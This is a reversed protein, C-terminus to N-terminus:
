INYKGFDKSNLSIKAKAAAGYDNQAMHKKQSMEELLKVIEPPLASDNNGNSYNDKIKFNNVLEKMLQAQGSLEESAAASEESTASNTQVVEAVEAIAQNIQSIGSAQETSAMAIEGILDAAKAIGDVIQDLASATENAIQTGIDVKKISGEIMATTENAANASRAALNRVEEAVVAFGKGHQGARAAEVAANLALINTQFAIDDIVKIIKSISNSSDNIEAMAKLMEGMHKNGQMAKGKVSTALENAENANAANQRTQTAIEEISATIEEISSAQETSGQSLAQSSVSVQNAGTAVQESAANINSLIQNNKDVMEKLKKNLLDNESKVSIEVTLDGDAIKEVALAQARINDAMRDFAEMLTGIEDKYETSVNVNIDGASLRDAADVLKGVPNSILRSILIGLLVAGIMGALIVIIMIVTADTTSKDNKESSQKALSVKISLLTDIENQIKQAIEPGDSYVFGTAQDYQNSQVYGIVKERFQKFDALEKELNIFTASEKQDRIGKEFNSLETDLEKDAEKFQNLIKGRLAQDKNLLLDRICSQELQYNQMLLALDDMTSTHHQYMDKDLSDIHKISYIGVGGVVGAVLAVIVFGTVLKVAIKLDYFWKM